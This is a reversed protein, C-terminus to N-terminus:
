KGSVGTLRFHPRTDCIILYAILWYQNVHNTPTSPDLIYPTNRRPQRLRRHLWPQRCQESLHIRLGGGSDACRPKHRKHYQNKKVAAKIGSRIIDENWFESNSHIIAKPDKGEATKKKLPLTLHWPLASKWYNTEVWNLKPPWTNLVCM